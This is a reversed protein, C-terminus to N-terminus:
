QMQIKRVEIESSLLYEVQSKFGLRKCKDDFYDNSYIVREINSNVIIKCCDICPLHTTYLTCGDADLRAELIAILEAHLVNICHNNLIVCDSDICRPMGKPSTNWGVSIICGNKTILAGVKARKCTAEKALFNAFKLYINDPTEFIRKEIGSKIANVVNEDNFAHEWIAYIRLGYDNTLELSRIADSERREESYKSGNNCILCGHHYCGFVEIVFDYPEFVFDVFYKGFKVQRHYDKGEEYGLAILIDNLRKETRSPRKSRALHAIELQRTREESNKKAWFNLM